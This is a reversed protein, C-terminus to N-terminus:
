DAHIVNDIYQIVHDDGFLDGRCRREPGDKRYPEGPAYCRIKTRAHNTQAVAVTQKSLHAGIGRGSAGSVIVRQPGEKAVALLARTRRAFASGSCAVLVANVHPKAVVSVGVQQIPRCLCPRLRRADLVHYEHFLNGTRAICLTRVALKGDGRASAQKVDDPPRIRPGQAQATM